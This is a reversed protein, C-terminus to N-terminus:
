RNTPDSEYALEVVGGPGFVQALFRLAGQKTADGGDLLGLIRASYDGIEEVAWGYRYYALAEADIDREGYGQFFLAEEKPGVSFGIGRGVVFMLDREKPAIVTEDWDVIHLRDESDLLLNGTHIDAHCLVSPRPSDQMARILADTRALVHGVGERQQQWILALERGFPDHAADGPLGQDHLERVLELWRPAYTERKVQAALDPTLALTHMRKLVRGLEAWHADPMGTDIVTRGEVFPYLILGFEDLRHWLQGGRSPLPAIVQTVGADQLARPVILSSENLPGRRVKLFYPAGDEAQVRLAWANSDNGIPLFEIERVAIAHQHRLDARIREDSLDPRELM